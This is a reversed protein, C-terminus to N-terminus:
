DTSIRAIFISNDSGFSMCRKWNTYDPETTQMWESAVVWAENESINICGFNGLRAGREPIAIQETKRILCMNEPDFEAFFLPARHRFVHDNDAGRRTYVMYLRGGCKFWHQQTNYNGANTGDDFVLPAPPSYHLGDKSKATYGTIDNRLAMFYEGGYEMISPEYLGRAEPYSLKNGLEKVHLDKGDFSCRMVMASFRFNPKTLEDKGGCYVPILLDGDPLELSQGSGNGCSYYAQEDPMILHRFPTWDGSKEDYTSWATFRPNLGPAHRNGKYRTTHGLLLFTGATRHYMPTADCVVEEIDDAIKQRCLTASKHFDSFNWGNDSSVLTEIGYFIDSGSLQLPQTTLIVQGAPSAGLRAHTYCFDGMFGTKIQQLHVNMDVIGWANFIIQTVISGAATFALRNQPLVTIKSRRGHTKRLLPCASKEGNKEKYVM